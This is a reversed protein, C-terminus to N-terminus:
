QKRWSPRYGGLDMIFNTGPGLRIESGPFERKISDLMLLEAGAIGRDKIIKLERHSYIILNKYKLPINAPSDGPELLFIKEGITKTNIIKMQNLNIM